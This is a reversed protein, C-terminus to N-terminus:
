DTYGLEKLMKILKPSPFPDTHDGGGTTHSFIGFQGYGGYQSANEAALDESPKPKGGPLGFVYKWVSKGTIGSQILPTRSIIGEILTKLKSIQVDSYDQYYQSGEWKFGLDVVQDDPIVTDRLYAPKTVFKGGKKKLAGYSAIEIGVGNTNWNDGHVCYKDEPIGSAATGSQDVAYHIGNTGGWDDKNPHNKRGVYEVTSQATGGGATIHITISKIERIKFQPETVLWYNGPSSPTVTPPFSNRDFVIKTTPPITLNPVPKPIITLKLETEWDNNSLSHNVATVIFDLSDSYNPPLFRTNIQIKNYIKIGSIGDVKLTINFPIFGINGGDNKGQSLNYSPFAKFYETATELNQSILNDSLNMDGVGDPSEGISPFGNEDGGQTVVSDGLMGFHSLNTTSIISDQYMDIADKVHDKGAISLQNAPLLETKFRDKIGKNWRAFATAETGKVYGGATAGVTVMTAYAPTIATKLDIKRVFSGIKNGNVFGFPNIQYKDFNESNNKSSDVISLINTTEDIVPELNNVGGLARNIGECIQDIFSFISLNGKKDLNSQLTDGVFDFNLYVNMSNAANKSITDDIRWYELGKSNKKHGMNPVFHSFGTDPASPDPFKTDMTICVNPDYSGLNPKYQMISVFKKQGKPPTGKYYAPNDQTNIDIINPNLEYVPNETDIRSLVNSKIMDLLHKFRIYFNFSASPNKTYLRVVDVKANLNASAGYITKKLEVIPNPLKSGAFETNYTFTYKGRILTPDNNKNANQFDKWPSSNFLNATGLAYNRPPSDKKKTVGGSNKYYSSFRIGRYVKKEAPTGYFKYKKYDDGLAVYGDGRVLVRPAFKYKDESALLETIEGTIGMKRLSDTTPSEQFFENRNSEGTSAFDEIFIPVIKNKFEEWNEKLKNVQSGNRDGTITLTIPSDPSEFVDKTIAQLSRAFNNLNRLSSGSNPRTIPITIPEPFNIYGMERNNGTKWLYNYADSTPELSKPKNFGLKFTLTLTFLSSDLTGDGSGCVDGVFYHSQGKFRDEAAQYFMNNDEIGNKAFICLGESTIYNVASKRPESNLYKYLYLLSFISNSNRYANVVNDPNSIAVNSTANTLETLYLNTARNLTINSKLSEIIDGLSILELNIDYSGDENFSWDFNSVKGIFGDYNGESKKREEEIQPLLDLYSSNIDLSSDFFNNELFTTTARQISPDSGISSNSKLYISNGWELLVTYGLRLYLVDLIQLQTYNEARLKIRAKKLSGRNLCKISIDKLGPMPVIGFNKSIDYSSEFQFNDNFGEKQQLTDGELSSIGNFLIHNKALNMGKLQSVATADYGMDKLKEETVSVGSAFKVWSTKANFFILNDDNKKKAGLYDQRTIIQEWVYDKLDEGIIAM